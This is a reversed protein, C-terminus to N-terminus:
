GILTNYQDNSMYSAAKEFPNNDMSDKQTYYLRNDPLDEDVVEEVEIVTKRRGNADKPPSQWDVNSQQLDSISCEGKINAKNDKPKKSLTSVRCKANKINM